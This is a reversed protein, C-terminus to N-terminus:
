QPWRQGLSILLRHKRNTPLCPPRAIGQVCAWFHFGAWKEIKSWWAERSFKIRSKGTVRNRNEDRLRWSKNMWKGWCACKRFVESRRSCHLNTSETNPEEKKEQKLLMSGEMPVKFCFCLPLYVMNRNCRFQFEWGQSNQSVRQYCALSLWIPSRM